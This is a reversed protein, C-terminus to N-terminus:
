STSSMARSAASRASSFSAARGITGALRGRYRGLVCQADDEIVTLGHRQALDLLPDFDAALGFISVPIIARTFETIKREADAPDINFTRPDSDAFVPVAGAQIVVFATAAMTCTPVIVEDGPGIGAALLCSLMTGSGSNHSIAFRVGFREAFATEFRRLMGASERNGFGDDLVEAMYRRDAEGCRNPPLHGFITEADLPEAPLAPLLSGM